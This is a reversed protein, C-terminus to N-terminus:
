DGVGVGGGLRAASRLVAVRTGHTIGEGWHRGALEMSQKLSDLVKQPDVENLAIIEPVEEAARMWAEVLERVDNNRHKRGAIFRAMESPDPWDPSDIHCPKCLLLLNDPTSSGGLSDPVIHARELGSRNWRASPTNPKDWRERYWGCAFCSPEGLDLLRRAFRGRDPSSAWHEAIAWRSPTSNESM